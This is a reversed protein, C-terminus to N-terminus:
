KLGAIEDSVSKQMAKYKSIEATIADIRGQAQSTGQYLTNFWENFHSISLLKEQIRERSDMPKDSGITANKKDGVRSRVDSLWMTNRVVEEKCYGETIIRNFSPNHVLEDIEKFMALNYEAEKLEYGLKEIHENIGVSQENLEELNM